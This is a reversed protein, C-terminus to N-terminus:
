MCLHKCMFVSFMKGFVLVVQTQCLWMKRKKFSKRNKNNILKLIFTINM